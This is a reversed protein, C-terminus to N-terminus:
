FKQERYKEIDQLIKEARKHYTHEALFKKYSANRIKEREEEHSLYYKILNILEENNQYCVVEEGIKFYNNLEDMYKTIVFTNCAMAEFLGVKVNNYGAVTEAFSLYIKGSNIAKTHEIGQVKGLGNDWGDGYLGINFESLKKIVEKRNPRAHGIVVIDYTKKIEPMFYHHKTSAAFPLLDVNVKNKAYQNKLSFLSNTYFLDFNDAYIAGNYPYVDPDSLETGVVTINHKKCYEFGDKELTLGGSNLLIFDVKNTEIDKVIKKTDLYNIQGNPTKIRRKVRSDIKKSYIKLDIKKIHCLDAMDDSMVNIVDNEGMWYAGYHIGKLHDYPKVFQEVKNKAIQIDKQITKIANQRYIFEKERIQSIESKAKKILNDLKNVESMKICYEELGCDKMLARIKPCIDIGICPLGKQIAAIIGHFRGSIVFGSNEIREEINDKYVQFDDHKIIKFNQQIIKVFEHYNDKYHGYEIFQNRSYEHFIKGDRWVFFLKNLDIKPEEVFNLPFSFTIDRSPEIDSIHMCDLSYKDRVFFFQSKNKIDIADNNNYPFEAGLGIAGYPVKIPQKFIKHVDNIWLGGGGCIVFAAENLRKEDTDIFIAQPFLRKMCKRIWQDGLNEGQWWGWIVLKNKFYSKKINTKIGLIKYKDKDKFKQKSYIFNKINRGIINKLYFSYCKSKYKKIIKKSYKKQVLDTKQKITNQKTSTLSNSQLRYQYLNENCYFINGKLALRCWFDYDEACFVSEDYKGVKQAINKTYLFCAGINCQLALQLACRDKINEIFESKFVKNENIFDFNCSILEIDKHGELFNVMYELANQKYINDDSTWTYYEGNANEFGINLSKPLKENQSNTILKIRSDLKIYEEVIKATNDTSCDNVIILEWNKYSQNLVSEISERIYKEGNFTPLVISVLKNM